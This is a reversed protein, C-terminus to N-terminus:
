QQDLYSRFEFTTVFDNQENFVLETQKDKNMCHLNLDYTCYIIRKKNRRALYFYVIM